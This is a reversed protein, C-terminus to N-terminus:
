QLLSLSGRFLKAVLGADFGDVMTDAVVIAVGGDMAVDVTGEVRFSYNNNQM